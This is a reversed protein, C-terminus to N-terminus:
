LILEADKILNACQWLPKASLVIIKLDITKVISELKGLIVSREQIRLDM